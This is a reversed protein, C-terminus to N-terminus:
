ATGQKQLLAEIRELHEHLTDMEAKLQKGEEEELSAHLEKLQQKMMEGQAVEMAQNMELFERKLDDFETKQEAKVFVSALEAAVLGFVGIGILMLVVGLLRGPTTTPSRDGYGITTITAASWWLSDRMSTINAGDATREVYYVLTSIIGVSGGIILLALGLSHRKLIRNAHERVDWLFVLGLLIPAYAQAWINCIPLGVVIVFDDIDGRWWDSKDPAFYFRAAYDILFILWFGWRIVNLLTDVWSPWDATAEFPTLLLIPLFVLTVVLIFLNSDKVYHDLAAQNRWLGRLGGSLLAEHEADEREHEARHEAERAAKEAVEDQTEDTGVPEESM